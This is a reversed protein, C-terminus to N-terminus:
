IGIARLDLKGNALPPCWFYTSFIPRAVQFLGDVSGDVAGVMRNLQAEFAEFSRGFAVFLLGSKLGQAWPM